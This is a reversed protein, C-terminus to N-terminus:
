DSQSPEDSWEVDHEAGFSYIFEILESMEGITMRSTRYGFAVVQDNLGITTEQGKLAATFLDKWAEPSYRRAHWEVQQSVDELMAWLRANQETNRTAKWRKAHIEIPGEPLDAALKSM